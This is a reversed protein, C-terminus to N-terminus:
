AEEETIILAGPGMMELIGSFPGLKAMRSLLIVPAIDQRPSANQTHAVETSKLACTIGRTRHRFRSILPLSNPFFYEPISNRWVGPLVGAEPDRSPSAGPGRQSANRTQDWPGGGEEPFHFYESLPIEGNPSNTAPAGVRGIALQRTLNYSGVQWQRTPENIWSAMPSNFRDTSRAM